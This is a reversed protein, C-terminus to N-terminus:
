AVRKVSDSLEDLARWLRNSAPNMHVPSEGIATQFTRHQDRLREVRLHVGHRVLLPKLREAHLLLDRRTRQYAHNVLRRRGVYSFVNVFFM